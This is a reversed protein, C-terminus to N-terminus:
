AEAFAGGTIPPHIWISAESAHSKPVSLYGRYKEVLAIFELSCERESSLRESLLREV